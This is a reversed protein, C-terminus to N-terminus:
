GELCLRSLSHRIANGTGFFAFDKLFFIKGRKSKKIKEVIQINTSQM